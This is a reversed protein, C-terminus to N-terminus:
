STQLALKSCGRDRVAKEYMFVYLEMRAWALSWTLNVTSSLLELVVGDFRWVALERRTGQEFSGGAKRM